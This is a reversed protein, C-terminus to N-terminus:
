NLNIINGELSLEGEAKIIQRGKSVQKIYEANTNIGDGSTIEIGGYGLKIRNGAVDKLMISNTSDDLIISNGKPTQLVVKGTEDSPIEADIFVETTWIADAVIHRVRSVKRKEFMEGVGSFDIEYDCWVDTNGQLKISGTTKSGNNSLNIGLVNVGLEPKFVMSAGKLLQKDRDTVCKYTYYFGLSESSNLEVETIKGSFLGNLNGDYGVEIYVLSGIICQVPPKFNTEGSVAVSFQAAFNERDLQVIGISIVQDTPDLPYVRFSATENQM